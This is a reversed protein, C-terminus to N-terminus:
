TWATACPQTSARSRTARSSTPRERTASGRPRSRLDESMREADASATRLPLRAGDAAGGAPQGHGAGRRDARALDTPLRGARVAEALAELAARLPGGQEAFPGTVGGAKPEILTVLSRGGRELYLAPQECVLVLYAGAVRAATGARARAQAVAAGSRLAARSGDAAIVLTSEGSRSRVCASSRGPSRSSPGAWARSSTDAGACASRRSTTSPTTCRRSAM